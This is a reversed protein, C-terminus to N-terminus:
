RMIKYEPYNVLQGASIKKMLKDFDRDKLSSIKTLFPYSVGKIGKLRLMIEGRRKCDYCQNLIAVENITFYKHHYLFYLHKYEEFASNLLHYFDKGSLRIITGYCKLEGGFWMYEILDKSFLSAFEQSRVELNARFLCDVVNQPTSMDLRVTYGDIEFGERKEDIVDLGVHSKFISIANSAMIALEHPHTPKDMRAVPYLYVSKGNVTCVYRRDTLKHSAAYSYGCLDEKINYGQTYLLIVQNLDYRYNQSLLALFDKLVTEDAQLKEMVESLNLRM